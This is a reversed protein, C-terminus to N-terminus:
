NQEIPISDLRSDWQATTPLALGLHHHFPPRNFMAPLNPPKITCLIAGTSASAASPPAILLCWMCIEEEVRGAQALSPPPAAAAPARPLTSSIPCSFTHRILLAFFIFQIM